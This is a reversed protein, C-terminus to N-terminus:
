SPVRTSGWFALHSQCRCDSSGFRPVLARSGPERFALRNLRCEFPKSAEVSLIKSVRAVPLLYDIHWRRKKRRALHRGVRAEIGSSM